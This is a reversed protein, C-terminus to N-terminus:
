QGNHQFNAIDDGTGYMGDAGPSVLIFSDTRYPAFRAQVNRNMIYFPFSSRNPLDADNQPNVGFTSWALKHGGDPKGTDYAATLALVGASGSYPPSLSFLEANDAWHYIGRNAPGAIDNPDLDAMQRGATDARWYLMPYGFGDLYMPYQRDVAALGLTQRAKTEAPIEFSVAGGTSNNQSTKVKSTDIYPGYRTYVPEGNADIQYAEQNDTGTDYAWNSSGAVFTSFGPTGLLDAGSLAWVLLGAGSIRLTTNDYPSKVLEDNRDSSSPPYSGGIKSEAKFTELGTEIAGITGRTTTEKAVRRIAGVAPVLIAILIGIIVIVVMLEVLTFALRGRRTLQGPGRPIFM